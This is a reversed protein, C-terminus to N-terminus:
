ITLGVKIETTEFKVADRVMQKDRDRPLCGRGCDWWESSMYVELKVRM